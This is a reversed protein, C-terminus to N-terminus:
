SSKGASAHKLSTSKRGKSGSLASAQYSEEIKISEGIM